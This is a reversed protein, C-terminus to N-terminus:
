GKPMPWTDSLRYGGPFPDSPDLMLQRTGTVWARGSVIPIIGPRGGVIVDSDIMCHFETGIVSKGVFREGTRMQGKAHLVAM